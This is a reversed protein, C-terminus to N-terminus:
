YEMNHLKTLLQLEQIESPSRIVFLLASGDMVFTDFQWSRNKSLIRNIRDMSYFKIKAKIHINQSDQHDTFLFSWYLPINQLQKSSM